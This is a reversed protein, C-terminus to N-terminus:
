RPELSEVFDLIAERETDDLRIAPMRPSGHALIATVRARDRDVVRSALNPAQMARAEATAALGDPGHCAGCRAVFAAPAADDTLSPASATTLLPNYCPNVYIDYYGVYRLPRAEDMGHQFFDCSLLFRSVVSWTREPPPLESGEYRELDTAFATVVTDDFRLYPLERRLLEAVASHLPSAPAPAAPSPPPVSAPQSTVAEDRCAPLGIALGLASAASAASALLLERRTLGALADSM